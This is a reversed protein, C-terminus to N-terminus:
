SGSDVKAIGMQLDLNSRWEVLEENGYLWPLPNAHAAIAFKAMKLMASHAINNDLEKEFWALEKSNLYKSAGESYFHFILDTLLPM